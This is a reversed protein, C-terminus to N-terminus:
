QQSALFDVTMGPGIQLYTGRPIEVRDGNANVLYAPRLYLEFREQNPDIAYRRVAGLYFTEPSVTVQVWGDWTTGVVRNGTEMVVNWVRPEPHFDLGWRRLLPRWWEARILSSTVIGVGVAVPLSWGVYADPGHTLGPPISAYLGPALTAVGARASLLIWRIPFSLVVSLAVRELDSRRRTPTLLFLVGSAVFGPILYLIVELLTRFTV